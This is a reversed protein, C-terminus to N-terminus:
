RPPLLRELEQLWNQKLIIRNIAGSVAGTEKVMLFRRDAGVDYQHTANGGGSIVYDSGDFLEHPPGKCCEPADPNAAVAMMNGDLDLYFLERGDASWRPQQGGM